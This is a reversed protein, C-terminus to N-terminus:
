MNLISAYTIDLVSYQPRLYGRIHKADLSFHRHSRHHLPRHHVCVQLKGRAGSVAALSQLKPEMDRWVSAQWCLWEVILICCCPLLSGPVIYECQYSLLPAM